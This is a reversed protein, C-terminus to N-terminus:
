GQIFKSIVKSCLEPKEAHLWHGTNSIVKSQAKPFAKLIVPKHCLKIYDSLEGKIFLTPNNYFNKFELGKSLIAYDRKLLALNFRWRWQSNENYLGKLLFMRTSADFVYQKLIAEADARKNIANLDISKLGNFVEIHRPSYTVPAIDIVVLHSIKEPYTLALTMAVKGGLSHGIACTLSVNLQELLTAIKSAYGEFSFIDSFASKGHDPLDISLVQFSASLQRRLGSLNDLNGFLGHILLVWPKDRNDSHIQYYIHSM